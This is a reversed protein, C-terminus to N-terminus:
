FKHIQPPPLTTPIKSFEFRPHDQDEEEEEEVVAFTEVAAGIDVEEVGVETEVIDVEGEVGVVL